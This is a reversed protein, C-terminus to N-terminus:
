KNEGYESGSYFYMFISELSADEIDINVLDISHLYKILKSMEGNYNFTLINGNRKVNSVGALTINPESYDTEITISKLRKTKLEEMEEIAIVKGDKIIAVRDCLRQIENLEHSSIIISAGRKKEEEMLEFFKQRILPDLGSTPEDVIILKPSSLLAMVIGMKKKNGLSLDKAKRTLNLELKTALYDVRDMSVGKVRAVFELNDKVSLNPIYSTEGSAYGLENRVKYGDKFANENFIAVEGETPKILGVIARITTTKGAGNPGILGIIEGEKVNMTVDDVGVVSGFVKKLNIVECPIM